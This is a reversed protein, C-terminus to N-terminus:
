PRSARFPARSSVRTGTTFAGSPTSVRWEVGISPRAAGDPLEYYLEVTRTEGPELVVVWLPQGDAYARIPYEHRAGDLVADLTGSDVCWPQRDRNHVIMRVVIVRVKPGDLEPEHVSTLRAVALEVEGRPDAAPVRYTMAPHGDIQGPADARRTPPTPGYVYSRVPACGVAAVALAVVFSSARM